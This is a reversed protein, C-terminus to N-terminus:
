HYACRESSEARADNESSMKQDSIARLAVHVGYLMAM